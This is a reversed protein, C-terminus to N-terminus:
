KWTGKQGWTDGTGLISDLVGDKMGGYVGLRRFLRGSKVDEREVRCVRLMGWFELAKFFTYGFSYLM